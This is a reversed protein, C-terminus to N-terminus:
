SPLEEFFAGMQERVDEPIRMPSESAIDVMVMVSKARAAVVDQQDLIEYHVDYSAGGFRTIWLEVTVHHDDMDIPKLYDIENRAVFHGFDKLSSKDLGMAHILSIRADQMFELYATNNVHAMADFDAWRLPIVHRHRPM